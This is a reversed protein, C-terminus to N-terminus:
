ARVICSETLWDKGVTLQSANNTLKPVGSRQELPQGGCLNVARIVDITEASRERAVEGGVFDKALFPVTARQHRGFSWWPAAPPNGAAVRLPTCNACGSADLSRVLDAFAIPSPELALVRGDAVARSCMVATVGINAGVDIVSCSRDLRLLERVLLENQAAYSPLRAFYEDTIRGFFTAPAGMIEQQKSTEQM